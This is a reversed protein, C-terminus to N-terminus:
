RATIGKGIYVKILFKIVVPQRCDCCETYHQARRHQWTQEKSAQSIKDGEGERGGERGRGREGQRVGEKGGGGESRRGGEKGGEEQKLLPGKGVHLPISDADSLIVFIYM